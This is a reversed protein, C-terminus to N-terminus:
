DEPTCTAPPGGICELGPCCQETSTCTEGEETCQAAHAKSFPNIGLRELLQSAVSQPTKREVPSASTPAEASLAEPLAVGVLLVLAVLQVRM